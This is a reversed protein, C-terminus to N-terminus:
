RAEQSKGPQATTAQQTTTAQQEQASASRSARQSIMRKLLSKRVAQLPIVSFALGILLCVLLLFLGDIGQYSIQGSIVAWAAVGVATLGCIGCFVNLIIDQWM